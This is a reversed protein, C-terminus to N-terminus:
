DEIAGHKRLLEATSYNVRYNGAGRYTFSGLAMTLPTEGNRNRPNVDAGLDILYQVITDAGAYAAAHLPTDGTGNAEVIDAGLDVLFKVAEFVHSETVSTEGEVRGFGAAMMLPTLNDPTTLWPDAGSALLLRMVSLDGNMSALVFPTAGALKMRFVTFGFRPPSKTVRANPDAGYALLTTILGLKSDMPLTSLTSWEGSSVLVGTQTSTLTTDWRGAVRHLATYGAGSANPDAGHELLFEAVPVHGRAVAVVLASTGDGSAVNVDAREAVLLRALDLRGHRAAFLLPTFGGKSRLEVDAGHDILVRVVDLHGESVAWMLATQGNSSEVADVHAGRAILARVVGVNGTNAATMLATEGSPLAAHPSAGARLLMEVMAASGNTCALVLPTVGFDNVANVKAGAGILLAATELDDWHAAWHLGTAGDPQPANVDVGAKLLARVASDDRAEAAQVLRRDVSAAVSAAGCLVLVLCWGVRAVIRM